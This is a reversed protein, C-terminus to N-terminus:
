VPPWSAFITVGLNNQANPTSTLTLGSQASAFAASGGGQSRAYDLASNFNTTLNTFSYTPNVDEGALNVSYGLAIGGAAIDLDASMGSTSNTLVASGSDTLSASPDIGTAAWVGIGTANASRSWTVVITASTGSTITGAWFQGILHDTHLRSFQKTLSTGNVTVGSADDTGSGGGGTGIAVIVVRDSSATGIDCSSFSRVATSASASVKNDTYAITAVSPTVLPSYIPMLM